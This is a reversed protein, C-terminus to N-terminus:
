FKRILVVGATILVIGLIRVWSIPQVPVGFLGLQDMVLAMLLQGAVVLSFTLATGLRPTLFLTATVYFVGLLGACWFGWPLASGAQSIRGWEMGRALCFVFLGATGVAFSILSAYVPDRLVAGVRANMGAQIPALMGAVLAIFLFLLKM